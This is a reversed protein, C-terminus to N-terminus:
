REVPYRPPMTEAMDQDTICISCGRCEGDHKTLNAITQKLTTTKKGWTGIEWTDVSWRHTPQWAIVRVRGVPLDLLEREILQHQPTKM